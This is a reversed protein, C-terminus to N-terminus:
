QLYIIKGFIPDNDDVEVSYFYVGNPLLNGNEDTGDWTQPDPPGDLTRNRTANQIVTKIYNMSFNYIRITVSADVGGTSYKFKLPEQRPSFPNPYCYAENNSSLPQAALYVNWEGVWFGTESIKALGDDSGLWVDNGESSASYFISTTLSVNSEEDFKNNPLIWSSGQNSTRFAGADTAAITNTGKFGFNHAREDIL